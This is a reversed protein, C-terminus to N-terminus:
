NFRHQQLHGRQRVLHQVMRAVPVVVLHLRYVLDIIHLPAQVHGLVDLQHRCHLGRHSDRDLLSAYVNSVRVPIGSGEAVGGEWTREDVWTRRNIEASTFSVYKIRSKFHLILILINTELVLWNTPTSRISPPCSRTRLYWWCFRTTWGSSGGVTRRVAVM